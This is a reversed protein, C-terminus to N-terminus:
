LPRKRRQAIVFLVVGTVLLLVAVLAFPIPNWEQQCSQETATTHCVDGPGDRNTWALFGAAAAAGSLLGWTGARSESQKALLWAATGGSLVLLPLGITLLGIIGFSAVAGIAVWVAFWGWARQRSISTTAETVAGATMVAM